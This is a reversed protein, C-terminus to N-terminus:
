PILELLIEDHAKLRIDILRQQKRQNIINIKSNLLNKDANFVEELTVLDESLEEDLIAKEMQQIELLQYRRQMNDIANEYEEMLLLRSKTWNLKADAYQQYNRNSRIKSSLYNLRDNDKGFTHRYSLGVRWENADGKRLESWSDSQDQATGNRNYSLNFDLQDKKRHNMVAIRTKDLEMSSLWTQGSRTRDYEHQPATDGRYDTETMKKLLNAPIQNLGPWNINFEKKLTDMRRVLSALDLELDLVNRKHSLLKRQPSLGQEVRARETEREQRAIELHKKRIQITAQHEALELCMKGFDLLQTELTKKRQHEENLQNHEVETISFNNATRSRGKLLNQTIAISVSSNVTERSIRDASSSDSENQNVILNLQTGTDFRKSLDIQSRDNSSTVKGAGETFSFSIRENENYNKSFNLEPLWSTKAKEIDISNQQQAYDHSKLKPHKSITEVSSILLETLWHQKPASTYNAKTTNSSSSASERHLDLSIVQQGTKTEGGCSFDVTWSIILFSFIVLKM